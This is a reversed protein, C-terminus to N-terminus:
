SWHARKETIFSGDAGVYKIMKVPLGRQELWQALKILSAKSPKYHGSENDLCMVIPKNKDSFSLTIRGAGRVPNDGIFSAHSNIGSQNKSDEIFLQGNDDMVYRYFYSQPHFPTGDTRRLQGNEVVVKFKESEEPSLMGREQRYQPLLPFTEWIQPLDDSTQTAVDRSSTSAREYIDESTQLAVDRNHREFIDEAALAQPNLTSDERNEDGENHISGAQKVRSFGSGSFVLQQKPFIGSMASNFM